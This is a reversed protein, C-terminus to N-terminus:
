RIGEVRDAHRRHWLELMLLTWIIDGYFSTGDAAHQEFLRELAGRRFYARQM